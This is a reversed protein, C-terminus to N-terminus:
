RYMEEDAMAAMIIHLILKIKVHLTTDVNTTKQSLMKM